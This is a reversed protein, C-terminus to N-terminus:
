QNKKPGIVTKGAELHRTADQLSQPQDEIILIDVIRSDRLLFPGCVEM